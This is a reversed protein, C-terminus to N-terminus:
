VEKEFRIAKTSIPSCVLKLNTQRVLVACQVNNMVFSENLDNAWKLSTILPSFINQIMVGMGLINQIMVVM